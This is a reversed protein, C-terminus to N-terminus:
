HDSKTEDEKMRESSADFAYYKPITGFELGGSVNLAIGTIYSAWPSLLFLAATGIEQPQGGRGMWSYHNCRDAYAEPDAVKKMENLFLDTVIHGPCIANVRVGYAFVAVDEKQASEVIQKAAVTDVSCIVLMDVGQTIFNEAQQHQTNANEDAYQIEARYGLAELDAKLFEAEAPWRDVMASPFLIGVFKQEEATSDGDAPDASSSDQAGGCGCVPILLLALSGALALVRKMM